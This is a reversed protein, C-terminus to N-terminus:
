AYSQQNGAIFCHIIQNRLTPAVCKLKKECSQLANKMTRLSHLLVKTSLCTLSKGLSALFQSFALISSCAGLSKLLKMELMHEEM